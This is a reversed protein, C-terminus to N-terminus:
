SALQFTINVVGDWDVAKGDQTAPQFRMGQAAREAAQDLGHGLSSSVGLV